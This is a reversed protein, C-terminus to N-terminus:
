SAESILDRQRVVVLARQLCHILKPLQELDCSFSHLEQMRGDAGVCRHAKGDVELCMVRVCIKHRRSRGDSWWEWKGSHPKPASNM